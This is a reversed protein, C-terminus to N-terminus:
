SVTFPISLAIGGDFYVTLTYSGPATPAKTTNLSCYHYDQAEWLHAWNAELGYTLEPIANGDADRIVYLIDVPEDDLYFPANVRIVMSISQGPAFETTFADNPVNFSNWGANDPTPLLQATLKYSSIAHGFFNGGDPCTFTTTSNFVSVNEGAQITFSYVAGPIRPTIEASTDECKLVNPMSNNDISYMVLWGDEPADGSHNWTLILQEGTDEVSLVSLTIPNATISTRAPQTMGVATVEVTYSCDAELGSFTATTEATDLSSEYNESYCRVHWQEVPGSAPQKWQVTMVGDEVSVVTLENALVLEIATFDLAANGTLPSEDGTELQFTYVKGIVLNEVTVNHGTFTKSLMPEDEAFYVVKWGEPEHGEVTFSLLVSGDEPGTISTFSVVNTISETTFIGSVQGTLKHFGSIELNVKYLSAPNLDRFVAQGNRVSQRTATGYSDVCVVTLLTEDINSQVTVVMENMSGDIQISDVNQLYYSNWFLFGAAGMALLLLVILFSVLIGKGKRKKQVPAAVPVKRNQEPLKPMDNKDSLLMSVEALENELDAYLESEDHEEPYETEPVPAPEAARYVPQEPPLVSAQPVYDFYGDQAAAPAAPTQPEAVSINWDPGPAPSSLDETFTLQPYKSAEDPTESIETEAAQAETEATQAETEAAAPEAAEEAAAEASPQEAEPAAPQAPVFPLPGTKEKPALPPMITTNNITNSQMYAVLARGMEAPDKWRKEPDKDCAKMIIRGMEPDANQPASLNAPDEPLAGSNFIQYLIMGLAYTDASENLVNLDDHLEPATYDSRYKAPMSTYKLSSLPAFGLDGIKYEKKSSVFINGPKLDIYMMGARRCAALAACIDIGLNVAELHTVSHRRMYKELTLKYTGLLYVEYGIRNQNMPSIQWSEYSLFGELESMKKLFEAEKRIDEALERFYDAASAPDSYAGTILLADLQIQSPPVSIVKVIYRQDSNEKIAPYCSVGFHSGLPVGMTFGELLSSDVASDPM